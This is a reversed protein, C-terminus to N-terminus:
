FTGDSPVTEDKSGFVSMAEQSSSEGKRAKQLSDWAYGRSENPNLIKPSVFAMLENSGETWTRNTKFLEGFIPLSRFFPISFEDYADVQNNIGGLVATKGDEVLMRTSITQTSVQGNSLAAKSINIILDIYGDAKVVPTVSMNSPVTTTTLAQTGNETFGAPQSVTQADSINAALLNQTIVRPSSITKAQHRDGLMGLLASVAGFGGLTATRLPISLNGQSGTPSNIVSDAVKGGAGVGINSSVGAVSIPGVNWPINFARGGNKQMIVIRGEILIQAPQRDLIRVLREMKDLNEPIDTVILTNSPADLRMSGRPAPSAFAQLHAQIDAPVQYAIPILRTETPILTRSQEQAQILQAIETSLTQRQAIYYVKDIVQYGLNHNFLITALAQDWPIQTLSVTVQQNSSADKFLYNIGLPSLILKMVDALAAEKANINIPAGVFEKIDHMSLYTRPVVAKAARGSRFLSDNSIIPFDVVLQNGTRLITPDVFNRLQILIKVTPINATSSEFAQVLAVPGEFEGTDLPRKLIKNTIRMNRLEIVVQRRKGRLERTWDVPRNAGVVIRIRDGLQKFDLATMTGMPGDITSAKLSPDTNLQDLSLANGDQYDDFKLEEELGELDPDGVGRSKDTKANAGGSRLEDDLVLEEEAPTTKASNKAGEGKAASKGASSASGSEGFLDEEPLDDLADLEAQLDQSYAPLSFAVSSIGLLLSWRFARRILKSTSDVM